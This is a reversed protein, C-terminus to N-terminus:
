YTELALVAYVRKLKQEQSRLNVATIILNLYSFDIRCAKPTELSLVLRM